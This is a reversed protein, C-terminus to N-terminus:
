PNGPPQVRDRHRLEPHGLCGGSVLSAKGGGFLELFTQKFSENIADFEPLSSRWRGTIDRIIDLLENKASEVDDRQETLYAYRTNVREYEDIAGINPTGLKAIDRKLEGIRRKAESVSELELRQEMAATRTLEYSDWLKDVLQKEEMQAAQRRQELRAAERELDLIRKNKEQTERDM